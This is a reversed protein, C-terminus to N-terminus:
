ARAQGHSTADRDCPPRVPAPAAPGAASTPLLLTLLRLICRGLVFSNPRSRKAGRQGAATALGAGDLANLTAIKQRLLESYDVSLALGGMLPVMTIVTMLTYNGRRDRGFKRIM